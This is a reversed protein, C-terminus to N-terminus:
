IRWYCGERHLSRWMTCLFMNIKHAPIHLIHKHPKTHKLQLCWCGKSLTHLFEGDGKLSGSIWGIEVKESGMQLQQGVNVGAWTRWGAGSVCNDTCGNMFVYIDSKKIGPKLLHGQAWMPAALWLAPLPASRRERGPPNWGSGCCFLLPDAAPWYGSQLCLINNKKINLLKYKFKKLNPLLLLLM